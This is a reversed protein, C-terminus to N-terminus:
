PTVAAPSAPAPSACRTAARGHVVIAAIAIATLATAVAVVTWMRRRLQEVHHQWERRMDDVTPRAPDAATTTRGTSNLWRDTRPNNLPPEPGRRASPPNVPNM